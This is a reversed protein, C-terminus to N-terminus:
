NFEVIFCGWLCPMILYWYTLRVNLFLDTEITIYKPIKIFIYLIQFHSAFGPFSNWVYHKEKM